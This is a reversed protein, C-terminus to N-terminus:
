MKRRGFAISLISIGVLFIGGVLGAGIIGEKKVKKKILNKLALAQTNNPEIDLLKYIYNESESYDGIKYLALSLFYYCERIMYSETVSLRKLIRIGHKKNKTKKSKILGWAYNFESQPTLPNESEIQNKLIKLHQDSLVSDLEDISMYHNQKDFM